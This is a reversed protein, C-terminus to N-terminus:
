LILFNFFFALIIIKLVDVFQGIIYNQEDHIQSLAFGHLRHEGITASQIEGNSALYHQVEAGAELLHVFNSQDV